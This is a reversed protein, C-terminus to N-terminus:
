EPLGIIVIDVGRGAIVKRVLRQPKPKGYSANIEDGFTARLFDQNTSIPIYDKQKEQFYM